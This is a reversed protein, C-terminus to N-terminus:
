SPWDGTVMIVILVSACSDGSIHRGHQTLIVFAVLAVVSQSRRTSCRTERDRRM